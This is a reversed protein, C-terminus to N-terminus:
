IWHRPTVKVCLLLAKRVLIPAILRYLPKPLAKAIVEPSDEFMAVLPKRVKVGLSQGAQTLEVPDIM